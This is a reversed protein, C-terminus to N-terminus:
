AGTGAVPFELDFSLSMDCSTDRNYTGGNSEVFSRVVGEGLALETRIPALVDGRENGYKDPSPAKGNIHLGVRGHDARFEVVIVEQKPRFRSLYAFVSKLVFGIQYPDAKVYPLNVAEAVKVHECEDTPFEDLVRQLETSLNLKILNTPRLSQGKHYLAVRDMTNEIKCLQGLAKGTTVSLSSKSSESDHLRRIWATALTLPTQVQLAVEEFIKEIGEVEEQRKRLSLDQAIYIKGPIDAPLRCCSIWADIEKGDGRLLKAETNPMGDRRLIAEAVIRNAFLDAFPLERDDLMQGLALLNVAAPNAERVQDNDDTYIFADTMAEYAAVMRYRMILKNVLKEVDTVIDRLRKQDDNSFANEITDEVNLVWRIKGEWCLPLCLESRMGPIHAEYDPDADLNFVVNGDKQFKRVVRGMVGRNLSQEFNQRLRGAYREAKQAELRLVQRAYDVHFLSVHRWHFGEALSKVLTKAVDGLSQCEVIRELVQLRFVSEERVRADIFHRIITDVPLARVQQLDAERFASTGRRWLSVAATLRSFYVPVHIVSNLERELLTKVSPDNLYQPGRHELFSRFDDIIRPERSDLWETSASTIPYWRKDFRIERDRVYSFVPSCHKCDASYRTVIIADVACIKATEAAISEMTKENSQERSLTTFIYSRLKEVIQGRLIGVSGVYEGQSDFIPLGVIKAPVRRNRDDLSTLEVDYETSVNWKRSELQRRVIHLNKSDPFVSEVFLGEYSETGMLRLAEANAYRIREDRDVRLIGLDSKEYIKRERGDRESCDTLSAYAWSNPSRHELRGVEIRVPVTLGDPRRIRIEQGHTIHKDLAARLREWDEPEFLDQIATGSLQHTDTIRRAEANAFIIVGKVDIQVIGLHTSEFVDEYVVSTEALVLSFKNDLWREARSRAAREKSGDGSTGDFVEAITEQLTRIETFLDRISYDTLRVKHLLRELVQTDDLNGLSNILTSYLDIRQKQEDEVRKRLAKCANGPTRDLNGLWGDYIQKERETLYRAIRRDTFDGETGYM